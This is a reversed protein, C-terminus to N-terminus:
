RAPFIVITNRRIALLKSIMEREDYRMFISFKASRSWGYGFSSLRTKNCNHARLKIRPRVSVFPTGHPKSALIYTWYSHM